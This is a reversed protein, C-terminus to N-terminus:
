SAFSDNFNRLAQTNRPVADLVKATVVWNPSGSIGPPIMILGQFEREGEPTRIMCKTSDPTELIEGRNVVLIKYSERVAAYRDGVRDDLLELVLRQQDLRERLVSSARIAPIESFNEGRLLFELPLIVSNWILIIPTM